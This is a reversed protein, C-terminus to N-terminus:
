PRTGGAGARAGTPEPEPEAAAEVAQSLSRTRDALSDALTGLRKDVAARLTSRGATLLDGRLQDALQSLQPSDNMKEAGAALLQHPKARLRGSALYAGLAVALKAKRGRGLLYGAALSVALATKTGDGM